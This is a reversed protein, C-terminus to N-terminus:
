QGAIRQWPDGTVRGWLELASGKVARWQGSLQDSNM